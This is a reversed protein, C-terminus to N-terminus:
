KQKQLKKRNKADDGHAAAHEKPRQANDIQLNNAGSPQEDQTALSKLFTEEWQKEVTPDLVIDQNYYTHAEIDEDGEDEEFDDDGHPKKGKHGKKKKIQKKEVKLRNLVQKPRRRSAGNRQHSRLSMQELQVEQRAFSPDNEEKETRMHSFTGTTEKYELRPNVDGLVGCAAMGQHNQTIIADPQQAVDGVRRGQSITEKASATLLIVSFFSFVAFRSIFPDRHHRSDRRAGTIAM